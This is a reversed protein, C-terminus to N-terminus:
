IMNLNSTYPSLRLTAALRFLSAKTFAAEKATFSKDWHACVNPSRRDLHHLGGFRRPQLIQAAARTLRSHAPARNLLDSFTLDSRSAQPIKPLRRPLWRYVITAPASSSSSISPM